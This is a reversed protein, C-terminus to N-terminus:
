VSGTPGRKRNQEIERELEQCDIVTLRGRKIRKRKLEVERETQLV